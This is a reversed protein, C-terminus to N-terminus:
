KLGKKIEEIVIDIHEVVEDKSMPDQKSPLRSRVEDLVESILSRFNTQIMEIADERTYANRVARETDKARERYTKQKDKPKTVGLTIKTTSLPSEDIRHEKM